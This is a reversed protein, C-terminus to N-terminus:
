AFLGQEDQVIDCLAPTARFRPRDGDFGFRKRYAKWWDTSIAARFHADSEWVAVTFYQFAADASRSKHLSTAVFGPQAAVYRAGEGWMEVFFVEDKADVNLANIFTVPM